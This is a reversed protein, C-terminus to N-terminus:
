SHADRRLKVLRERESEGLMGSTKRKATLRRLGVLPPCVADDNYNAECQMCSLCDRSDISGDHGIARPECIRECIKCSKCFRRRHPGSLRVSGPIALAAGLPCLYQCFPRFSFLSIGLLIAWWAIFFWQRTWPAVLFSTKFPEIEAMKEGMEPSFLFTVVLVVLVVYRLYRLPRHFREPPIYEPIKLKRGIKYLLETLAGFPCVWGCFVGRGWVITVIAIFIWSIFLLPESLFLDGRFDGVVSGILTLVQTVSPQARLWVGLVLFSVVMVATHVLQLRASKRTLWNRGLFLGMVLLLYAGVVGATFRHNYWASHWIPPAEVKRESFYISLPLRHTASFSRFDRSFGGKQNYSSGLFTLDFPAGPDLRNARVIFVVGEKFEPADAVDVGSLNKYDQDTFMTEGLDQELRVRDFVGGRVFGSGKFSSSGNGLVVLLLEDPALQKMQWTYERDGLLARGVQPANAVTFFLDIFTGDKDAGMDRESVTLRGFVGEQIMRAWTWTQDDHVFHGPATERLSIAGVARGLIRASDLITLNEALVTVTAGSVIDVTVADPDPSSGVVIKTTASKGVYFAVFDHLEKEPIGVLLIPESHKIVKAGAIIGEPTLGVLTVLPKGSYGKTGVVDTSLVVWGKETGADDFGAWFVAREVPEFRTAGPLVGACDHKTCDLKATESDDAWALSPALLGFFVILALVVASSVSRLMPAKQVLRAASAVRSHEVSHM